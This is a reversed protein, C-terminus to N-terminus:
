ALEPDQIRLLQERGSPCRHLDENVWLRPLLDCPQAAAIPPPVESGVECLLRLHAHRLPM